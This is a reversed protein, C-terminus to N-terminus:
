LLEVGYRILTTKITQYEEKDRKVPRGTECYKMRGASSDAIIVGYYETKDWKPLQHLEEKVELPTEVTEEKGESTINRLCLIDELINANGRIWSLNGGERNADWAIYEYTGDDNELIAYEHLHYVHEKDALLKKM